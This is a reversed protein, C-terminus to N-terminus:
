GTSCVDTEETVISEIELNSFLADGVPHLSTGHMASLSGRTELYLSPHLFIEGGIILRPVCVRSILELEIRFTIDKDPALTRRPLYGLVGQDNLLDMVLGTQLDIKFGIGPSRESNGMLSAEVLALFVEQGRNQHRFTGSFCVEGRRAPLLIEGVRHINFLMQHASFIM